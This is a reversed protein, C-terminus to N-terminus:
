NVVWFIFYGSMMVLLGGAIAVYPLIGARKPGLDHDDVVVVDLGAAELLHQRSCEETEDRCSHRRASRLSQTSPASRM